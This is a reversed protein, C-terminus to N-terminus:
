GSGIYLERPTWDIGILFLLSEFKLNWSCCWKSSLFPPTSLLFSMFTKISKKRKPIVERTFLLFSTDENLNRQFNIQLDSILKKVEKLRERKEKDLGLGNREYAELVKV